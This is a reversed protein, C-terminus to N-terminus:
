GASTVYILSASPVDEMLQQAIPAEYTTVIVQRLGAHSSAMALTGAVIRRLRPDLHELPEDLWVFPARTSAGAVLLRAVLLAWVREGGSLAGFALTRSGVRRTIRGDASLQLGERGFTQKWRRAVEEVLPEIQQEMIRDATEGFTQAAALSVAELRYLEELRELQERDEEIAALEDRISNVATTRMAVDTDIRQVDDRAADHAQQLAAVDESADASSPELPVPVSRIDALIGKLNTLLERRSTAEQQGDAITAQLAELQRAHEQAAQEAEHEGFPRLCTPCVGEDDTAGSLREISERVVDARGRATAVHMELESIAREEDAEWQSLVDTVAAADVERELLSGAVEAYTALKASREALRERYTAWEAGARLRDNALNFVAVADEREERAARLDAEATELEAALEDTARRETREVVKTKRLESATEAAVARAREAGELLPRVGFLGALHDRLEFEGQTEHLGGHIMFTLQALVRPDAGFADTLVDELEAQDEITRPGLTAELATRGRRDVSRTIVLTGSTPLVLDVTVSAEEAEGRIEDAGRVGAIDGFVGWAGAMVLSTKGIGNSAVVFTAGPGLEVDLQDYARWNRLRLRQIM